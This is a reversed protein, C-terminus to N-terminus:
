CPQILMAMQIDSSFWSIWRPHYSGRHNEFTAGPALQV